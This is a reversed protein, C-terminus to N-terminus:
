GTVQQQLLSTHAKKPDVDMTATDEAPLSSIDTKCCLSQAQHYFNVPLFGWPSLIYGRGEELIPLQVICEHADDIHLRTQHPEPLRSLVTM